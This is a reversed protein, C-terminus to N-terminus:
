RNILRRYTRRLVPVRELRRAFPELAGPLSRRLRQLAPTSQVSETASRARQTTGAPPPVDDFSMGGAGDVRLLLGTPVPNGGGVLVSVPSTGALSSVFAELRAGGGECVLQAPLGFGGLLLRADLVADGHVHLDPQGLSARIGDAGEAISTLSRPTRGIVSSAVAGADLQAVARGSLLVYPRGAIVASCERGAALPLTVERGPWALRLHLGWRGDSLPHGGEDVRPDLVATVVQLEQDGTAVTATVAIDAAGDRLVLWARLAAPAPVPLRVGVTLHLLGAGWRYVPPRLAVDAILSPRGEDQIACAYRGVASVSAARGALAVPDFLPAGERSGLSSRRAMAVCATLDLVSADVRDADDPLAACGSAAASAARGLVLDADSRRARDVLVELARPTLRQHQAVALVQEGTSRDLARDVAQDESHDGGVTLLTVNPRRDAWRGLREATGDSSSDVIVLEVQAARLTQADLSRLLSPAGPGPDATRVVVM